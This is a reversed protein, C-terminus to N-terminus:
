NFLYQYSLRGMPMVSGSLYTDMLDEPHEVGDAVKFYIGTGSTAMGLQKRSIKISAQNGTVKGAAKGVRTLHGSSDIRSVTFGKTKADQEVVFEYGKWGKLAPQDRGIFLTLGRSGTAPMVFDAAATIDFYLYDRDHDLKVEKLVNVPAARKYTIKDTAGPFNRAFPVADVNRYTKGGPANAQDKKAATNAPKAKAVPPLGKYRRINNIMLLYFADEYGGKMPEVDRSYERNAADCLMYEDGYPQKYAIWENWGGVFVTDPNMAIAHDWQKQFFTGKDVDEAINKKTVPDWGRGWNVWGSTISRSMPVKPHSAVTVSMVGGHLPQPYKWEVWPFGTEYSPDFPWQPKKFYFFDAIEKSYPVPNYGLDSRSIAEARDDATDTYAIIMPKGNVKYWANELRGPKYLDEYLVRTTEMSKSHTYFVAKPANWGQQQFEEIVRLVKDYVEKYTVRNTLDFAIFDIGALTLMKMQRRIVWEDASNYYGFLPEGWFHAQGRPSIVSDTSKLDYLLSLGNPMAAIKSADYAGSAFPQGIWPWYFIGVQKKEKFGGIPSVTRGFQDVGVM